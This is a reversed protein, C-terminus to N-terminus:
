KIVQRQTRFIEIKINKNLTQDLVYGKLFYKGIFM